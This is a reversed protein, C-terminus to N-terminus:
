LTKIEPLLKAAEDFIDKKLKGLTKNKYDDTGIQYGVADSIEINFDPLEKKLMSAHAPSNILSRMLRFADDVQSSYRDAIKFTKESQKSKGEPNKLFYTELKYERSDETKEFTSLTSDIRSLKFFIDEPDLLPNLHKKLYFDTTHKHQPGNCTSCSPIFNGLTLALFPYKDKSFFHDIDPRFGKSTKTPIKTTIQGIQCYPCTKYKISSCLTYACWKEEKYITFKKYSFYYEFIEKFKAKDSKTPFSAIYNEISRHLSIQGYSLIYYKNELIFKAIRHHMLEPGQMKYADNLFECIKILLFEEHKKSADNWLNNLQILM